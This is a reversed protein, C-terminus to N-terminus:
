SLHLATVALRSLLGQREVNPEEQLRLSFPTYGIRLLVMLASVGHDTIM